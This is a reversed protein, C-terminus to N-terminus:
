AAPETSAQPQAEWGGGAQWGLAGGPEMQPQANGLWAPPDGGHSLLALAAAAVEGMAEREESPVTTLTASTRSFTMMASLTISFTARDWWDLPVVPVALGVPEIVQAGLREAELADPNVMEMHDPQERELVHRVGALVEHCGEGSPYECALGDAIGGDHAVERAVLRFRFCGRATL